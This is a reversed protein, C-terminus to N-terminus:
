AVMVLVVDIPLTVVRFAAVEVIVAVASAVVVSTTVTDCAPWVMVEATRTVETEVTENGTTVKVLKSVM